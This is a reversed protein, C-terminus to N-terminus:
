RLTSLSKEVGVSDNSIINKESWSQPNIAAIHQMVLSLVVFIDNWRLGVM